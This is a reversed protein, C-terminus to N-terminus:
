LLPGSAHHDNCGPQLEFINVEDCDPRMCKRLFRERLEAINRNRYYEVMVPIGSEVKVVIWLTDSAKQVM